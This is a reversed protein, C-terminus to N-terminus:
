SIYWIIILSHLNYASEEYNQSIIHVGLKHDFHLNKHDNPSYSCAYLGTKWLINIYSDLITDIDLGFDLGTNCPYTTFHM